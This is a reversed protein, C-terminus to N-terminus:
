PAANRGRTSIVPGGTLKDAHVVRGSAGRQSGRRAGIIATDPIGVQTLILGTEAHRDHHLELGPPSFEPSPSELSPLLRSWSIRSVFRLLTRSERGGAPSSRKKKRRERNPSRASAPQVACASGAASAGGGAFM